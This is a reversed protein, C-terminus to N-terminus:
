KIVKSIADLTNQITSSDHYYSIFNSEYNSPPMFIGEKLMCEWFRMYREKDANAAETHDCVSDVGFYIQFMGKVGQLVVDEPLLCRIGNMLEDFSRHMRRHVKDRQLVRLTALGASMSLPNGNFTGANYVEGVPTFHEMIGTQSGIIGIPLGGGAIKGFTVIDANVGYHEQAGGMSLRFGTIVEDFILLTGTENCIKRVEELFGKKPPICGLNGMVPELIIAAVDNSSLVAAVAETDNFKVPVTNSVLAAPIGKSSPIVSGKKTKALVGEHAGHYAGSFMVVKERNTVGRALRLAGMTAETGTNVCRIMEVNPVVKVIEKAFMIETETSTGYLTGRKLQEKVATVIDPHAHGLILPGYGLCYDIYEKGEVDWLYAGRAKKTFFPTLSRIPSNVGGVLYQRAEALLSANNM